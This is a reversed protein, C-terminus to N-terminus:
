FLLKYGITYKTILYKPNVGNDGIKIRINLIWILLIM